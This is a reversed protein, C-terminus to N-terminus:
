LIGPRTSLLYYHFERRNGPQAKAPHLIRIRILALNDSAVAADSPIHADAHVAVLYTANPITSRGNLDSNGGKTLFNGDSDYVLIEPATEDAFAPFDIAEGLVSPRPPNAWAAIIGRQVERALWASRTDAEANIRSDGASKSMALVLPIAFAIVAIAIVVEMLTLGRRTHTKRFDRMM